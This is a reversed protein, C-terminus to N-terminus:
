QDKFIPRRKELFAAIGEKMNYTGVLTSSFRSEIVDGKEMDMESSDLTAQTAAEVAMISKSGLEHALTVARTLVEEPQCAGNVLGITAADKGSILRGTLILELAKARGV